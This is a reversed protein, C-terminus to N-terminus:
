LRCILLLFAPGEDCPCRSTASPDDLVKSSYSFSGWSYRFPPREKAAGNHLRERCRKLGSGQRPDIGNLGPETRFEIRVVNNAAADEVSGFPCCIWRQRCPVAPKKM